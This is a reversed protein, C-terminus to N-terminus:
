QSCPVVVDTPDCYYSYGRYSKTYGTPCQGESSSPIPQRQSRNVCVVLDCYYSYGRYSLQYGVPCSNSVPSKSDITKRIVDSYCYYSYGAYGKTYGPPCPSHADSPIQENARALFPLSLVIVILGIKSVTFSKNM